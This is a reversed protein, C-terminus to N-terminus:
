TTLYENKYAESQADLLKKKLVELKEIEKNWISTDCGVEETEIILQSTNIIKALVLEYLDNWERNSMEMKITM